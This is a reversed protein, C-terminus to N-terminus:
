PQVVEAWDGVRAEKAMGEAVRAAVAVKVEVAMVAVAVRAAVV